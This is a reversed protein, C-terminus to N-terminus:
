RTTLVATSKILLRLLRLLEARVFASPRIMPVTLSWLGSDILHHLSGQPTIRHDAFQFCPQLLQFVQLWLLRSHLWKGNIEVAAETTPRFCEERFAVVYHPEINLPMNIAFMAIGRLEHKLVYERQFTPL